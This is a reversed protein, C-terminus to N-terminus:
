KVGQAPVDASRRCAGGGFFALRPWCARVSGPAPPCHRRRARPLLAVHPQLLVVRSHKEAPDLALQHRSPVKQAARRLSTQQRAMAARVVCPLCAKSAAALGTPGGPGM